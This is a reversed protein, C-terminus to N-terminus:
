PEPCPALTNVPAPIVIYGTEVTGFVWNRDRGWYWWHAAIYACLLSDLQDEIAKLAKGTLTAFDPLPPFPPLLPPDLTPLITFLYTRLQTLALKRDSLRGKKYKLIRDLGFLHITAPHPFVEIQYRGPAQPTIDPAHHFGRETLAEGLGVTQAAFPRGQNAPYCGAHYRGFHRHTLRDPRRTGTPNPIITPADIAIMGPDTPSLTRDCWALVAAATAVTGWDVFRLGVGDWRLGCVGSAGSSWGLDVGLCNM